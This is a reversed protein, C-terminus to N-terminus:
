NRGVLPLSLLAQQRSRFLRRELNQVRDLSGETQFLELSARAVARALPNASFSHGHFFTKHRDESLFAGYIREASATVGLPLYGGTLAKSLCMLDPQIQQHDCAFRKKTCLGRVGVLFEVPWVIMGGAGQLMPEVLVGAHQGLYPVALNNM